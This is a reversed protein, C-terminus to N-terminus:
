LYVRLGAAIEDPGTGHSFVRLFGGDPGFLIMVATHSVLYDLAIGGDGATAAPDSEHFVGYASAVRAIEAPTGTLGVLRPHFRAVFAALVAPTDRAPDVTIFVPRVKEGADGLRDLASAMFQLDLPCVDPCATYGFYVLMFAGRFDEATVTAGRHDVLAFPGGISAAGDVVGTRVAPMPALLYATAIAAVALTAAIAIRPTGGRSM